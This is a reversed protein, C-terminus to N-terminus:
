LALSAALRETADVQMTPSVHSYVNMTVVTSSHGLREAVVKPHIGLSLLYTASTHRLDYLRIRRVGAQTCLKRFTSRGLALSSLPRGQSDAFILENNEYLGCFPSEVM